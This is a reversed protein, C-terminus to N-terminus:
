TFFPFSEQSLTMILYYDNIWDSYEEETFLHEGNTVDFFLTSRSLLLDFIKDFISSPKKMQLVINEKERVVEITLEKQCTPCKFIFNEKDLVITKFDYIEHKEDKFKYVPYQNHNNTLKKEEKLKNEKNKIMIGLLVTDTVKRRFDQSLTREYLDNLSPYLVHQIYYLCSLLLTFKGHYIETKEMFVIMQKYLSQIPCLLSADNIILITSIFTFLIGLFFLEEHKEKELSIVKQAYLFRFINYDYNLWQAGQPLVKNKKQVIEQNNQCNIVIDCKMKSVPQFNLESPLLKGRQLNLLEMLLRSDNDVHDDTVHNIDPLSYILLNDLYPKYTEYGEKTSYDIKIDLLQKDKSEERNIIPKAEIKLSCFLNTMYTFMQFQFKEIEKYKNTDYSFFSDKNNENSYKEITNKINNYIRLLNSNDELMLHFFIYPEISESIVIEEEVKTARLKKISAKMNEITIVYLTDKEITRKRFTVIEKLKEGIQVKSSYMFMAIQRNSKLHNINDYVTMGYFLSFHYDFTKDPNDLPHLFIKTLYYLPYFIQYDNSIVIYSDRNLNLLLLYFFQEPTFVKFFMGINIDCLPFFQKYNLSYSSLLPYININNIKTIDVKLELFLIDFLKSLEEEKKDSDKYKNYISSLLKNFFTFCPQFSLIVFAERVIITTKKEGLDSFQDLNNYKIKRWYLLCNYYLDKSDIVQSFCHFTPEPIEQEFIIEQVQEEFPRSYFYNSDKKGIMLKTFFNNSQPFIMNLQRSTMLDKEYLIIKDEKACTSYLVEPSLCKLSNIKNTRPERIGCIYFYELLRVIDNNYENKGM